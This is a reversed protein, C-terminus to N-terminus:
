FEIKINFKATKFTQMMRVWLLLYAELGRAASLDGLDIVSKWGFERQIWQSVQQRAQEDNGCVFMATDPTSLVEPSVMVSTNVTNLSKVVRVAPHARQIQEALSDTNAVVLQLTGSSFDLPNALDVLIKSGLAADGAAAVAELAHSGSAANFIWEGFAAAQAYSGAQAGKGAGALWDHLREPTRSGLMVAHGGSLLKQALTQAVGGSGLIGINM